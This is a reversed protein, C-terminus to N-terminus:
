FTYMDIKRAADTPVSRMIVVICVKRNKIGDLIEAFIKGLSIHWSNIKEAIFRRTTIQYECFSFLATVKM